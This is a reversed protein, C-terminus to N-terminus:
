EMIESLVDARPNGDYRWYVSEPLSFGEPAILKQINSANSLAFSDFKISSDHIILSSLRTCFQFTLGGITHVNGKLDFTKMQNCGHFTSRTEEITAEFVVHTFSECSQFCDFGCNTFILNEPIVTVDPLLDETEQGIKCYIKKLKRCDEFVAMGETTVREGLIYLTELNWCYKFLLNPLQTVSTPLVITRLSFCHSFAGAGLSLPEGPEIEVTSLLVCAQFADYGIIRISKPIYVRQLFSCKRFAKEDLVELTYPLIVQKLSSCSEFAGAGIKTVNCDKLDIEQLKECSRFCGREITRLSSPLVFSKLNKCGNFAYQGITNVSDPIVCHDLGSCACFAKEGIVLASSPISVSVLMKCGDFCESSISTVGEPIVVKYLRQCGKFANQGLKKLSAPLNISVLGSCNEFCGNPIIEIGEPITIESLSSCGKFAYKGISRIHKPLVIRVLDPCNEFCGEPIETIGEPIIVSTLNKCGSFTYDKISTIYEPLQIIGRTFKKLRSSDFSLSDWFHKKGFTFIDEVIGDSKNTQKYEEELLFLKGEQTYKLAGGAAVILCIHNDRRKFDYELHYSYEFGDILVVNDTIRITIVRNSKTSKFLTSSNWVSSESLSKLFRAKLLPEEAKESTFTSLLKDEGNVLASWDSYDIIINAGLHLCSGEILIDEWPFFLYEDNDFRIGDGQITFHAYKYFKNKDVNTDDYYHVYCASYYISSQVAHQLVDEIQLQNIRKLTNM